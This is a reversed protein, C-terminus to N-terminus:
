PVEVPRESGAVPQRTVLRLAVTLAGAVTAAVAAVESGELIPTTALLEALGLVLQVIGLWVMKSAYWAKAQVIQM